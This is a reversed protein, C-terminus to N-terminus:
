LADAAARALALMEEGMRDASGGILLSVAVVVALARCWGWARDPDLDDVRGALWDIRQRVAQEGGGDALVWDVADFA